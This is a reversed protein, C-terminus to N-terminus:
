PTSNKSPKEEAEEEEQVLGDGELTSAPHAHEMPSEHAITTGAMLMSGLALPAFKMAFRHM